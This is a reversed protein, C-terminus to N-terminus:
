PNPSNGRLSELLLGWAGPAFPTRKRRFEESALRACADFAAPIKSEAPLDALRPMSRIRSLTEAVTELNAIGNNTIEANAVRLGLSLVARARPLDPDDGPMVAVLAALGRLLILHYVLRANHADCWRGQHPGSTMQGPYIGLQAKERAADLYKSEGTVRFVESLLFVSFSNYNWNPVAPQALAWDAAVRASQLYKEDKTAEYCRLVAVGALGNDFQLDGSADDSIFWGNHLVEALRGASKARAVARDALEGSPGSKGALAPFPFCGHAGQEQAWILFDAGSRAMRLLRDSEDCGARRAALCGEVVSAVIRLPGPLDMAQPRASWWAERELRELTPTFAHRAAEPSLITAEAPVPVYKPISDAEGASAGLARILSQTLKEVEPLKKERQAIALEHRIEALRPPADSAVATGGPLALLLMLISQTQKILSMKHSPSRQTPLIGPVRTTALLPTPGLPQTKRADM